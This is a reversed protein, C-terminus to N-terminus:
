ITEKRRDCYIVGKETIIMDMHVDHAESPISEVMQFSYALGAKPADIHKLLKDYYGKGYGVRMGRHDFAIGPILALDIEAPDVEIVDTPEPVDYAGPAIKDLNHIESLKLDSGITIPLVIRKSFDMMDETLVENKISMYFLITKASKYEPLSFLIDRIMLSQETACNHLLRKQKLSERLTSKM